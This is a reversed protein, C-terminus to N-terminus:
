FKFNIMKKMATVGTVLLVACVVLIKNGTSTDFLPDLYGPSTLAVAGAVIFPLGGIIAGSAKAEASVAQIKDAMKKRERLVNSLNGLAESLNGGATSQIAIVIAFFNTESTPISAYLRQAAEPMTMGLQTSEIIKQFEGRVPEDADNAIMRICDNLPLGSKIGRVIVDIANPFILIFKKFRRKRLYSVIWNPLGFGAVFALGVAFYWPLRLVVAFLLLVALGVGGSIMYFTRTNFTLGAQTLRMSLPPKTVETDEDKQSELVKLSEERAKRRQKEDAAGAKAKAKAKPDTRMSKMRQATKQQATIKNYFIAYALAGVVLLILAVLILFQTDFIM